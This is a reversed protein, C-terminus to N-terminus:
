PAAETAIRRAETMAAEAGRAHSRRYVYWPEDAPDAPVPALARKLRDVVEAREGAQRALHALALHPLRARPMTQAAREYAAQADGLRQLAECASGLFIAAYYTVFADGGADTATTLLRVAEAHEGRLALVRGLHVAAETFTPEADVVRRFYAEARRLEGDAQGFDPRLRDDNLQRAFEQFIPSAFAERECGAAFLLQPDDPFLRLANRLQLADFSESAHGHLLTAQYWRRVFRDARPDPTILEAVRRAFEWHLSVNEAGLSAGDGIFVRLPASTSVSGGAGAAIEAALVAVDTHLMAARRCMATRGIREVGLAVEELVFRRDPPEALRLTANTIQLGAGDLATVRLGREFEARSRDVVRLLLQVRVWLTRLGDTSFEAAVLLPADVEGPRHDVLAAFWRAFALEDPTPPSTPQAAFM